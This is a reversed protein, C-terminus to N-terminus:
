YMPRLFFGEEKLLGLVGQEGALHAAGVAVFVSAGQMEDVIRPVWSRNRGDLFLSAYKDLIADSKLSVARLGEIDQNKYMLYLLDADLGDTLERADVSELLARAQEEYPIKDFITLQDAISELGGVSIGMQEALEHLYIEYSVTEEMDEAVGGFQAMMQILMPKMTRFLFLPMGMNEFYVSVRNMEETTYLDELTTGNEMSLDSMLSFLMMPDEMQSLDLELMLKDAKALAAQTNDTLFFDEKAILHVTGYVYSTKYGEKSVEWLLSSDWKPSQTQVERSKTSRCGLFSVSLLIHLVFLLTTKNTM